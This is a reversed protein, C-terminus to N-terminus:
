NRNVQMLCMLFVGFIAGIILGFIFGLM